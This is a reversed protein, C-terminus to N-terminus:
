AAVTEVEGNQRMHAASVGAEEDPHGTAGGVAWRGREQAGVEGGFCSLVRKGLGRGELEGWEANLGGDDDWADEGFTCRVEARSHLGSGLGDGM